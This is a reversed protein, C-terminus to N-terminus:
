YWYTGGVTDINAYIRVFKNISASNNQVPSLGKYVIQQTFEM